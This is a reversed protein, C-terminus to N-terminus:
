SKMVKIQRRLAARRSTRDAREAYQDSVVSAAKRIDEPVDIETPRILRLTRGKGDDLEIWKWDALVQVYGAIQSTSNINMLKGMDRLSPAHGFQKMYAAIKGYLKICNDTVAAKRRQQANM